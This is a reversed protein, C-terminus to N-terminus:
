PMYPKVKHRELEQAAQWPTIEVCYEPLESAHVAAESAKKYHVNSDPCFPGHWVADMSDVYYRIRDYDKM